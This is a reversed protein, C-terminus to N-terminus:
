GEKAARGYEIIDNIERITINWDKTKVYKICENVMISYLEDDTLLKKAANYLKDVSGYEVRLSNVGDILDDDGKEIARVTPTGKTMAELPAVARADYKSAKLLIKARSYLENMKALSPTQYYEHPVNPLTKIPKQSYALIKYGDEKLRAAVQPAINDVDKALNTCEWGEVLVINEKDTKEVPFDNLNIGTDVYHTPGTRGQEKLYDINWRSYALLLNPTNYFSKCQAAFQPNTNFLHEVMQMFIISRKAKKELHISHPSGIIVLDALAVHILRTVIRVKISMWSCHTSGDQVFLSVDHYQALYNAWENLIRTGGHPVKLSPTTIILKM